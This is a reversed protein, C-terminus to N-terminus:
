EGRGLLEPNKLTADFRSEPTAKWLQNDSGAGIKRTRELLEARENDGIPAFSRGSELTQDLEEKTKFGTIVVSVPLSLAYHLCEKKTVVGSEPLYGSALTKMGLIGINEETLVPLVQSEFSNYHHDLLGVPMQVTDFTFGRARAKELMNLHIEPSKHGTFGIYRVKGAKQAELVADLASGPALIYDPDSMRIIEHFQLLDITDTQLRSLSEELQEMAAKRSQGDVKTMLFVKERYGDRLAKGMRRESEGDHYDWSNDMFTIGSDIATRIIEISEKESEQSGIHAGGLGLASVSEGTRGLTRQPIEPM